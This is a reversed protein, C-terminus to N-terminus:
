RLAHRQRAGRVLPPLGGASQLVYAAESHEGCWRPYARAPSREANGSGTSGAGAPTPRHLVLQIHSLGLAGRVLPPLGVIITRWYMPGYHEGCWRPYAAAWGRSRTHSTTSGAGAPTPRRRRQHDAPHRLAGRVLPPLGAAQSMTDWNENHEGCWRPYASTLGSPEGASETSGAGAPTPRNGRGPVATPHRAGRVLPPLGM